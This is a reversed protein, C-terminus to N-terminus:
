QAPASLTVVSAQPPVEHRTVIGSPWRVRISRPPQADPYGFFCDPTSQSFYGSGAYVESTQSTGDALEVTIRAGVASPNGAPGRLSIRLSHRGAIGQNRFALTTSNNRSVVFDPWGDANLDLVALAKADGPVVLGSEALPAATFNGHGDGRLLQSLGGDFRGVIPNPAYSNQVAYIDAHGDGDFDGAVLGQLPAIQALRPLPSFRYIGDPQSLLVGSRLETASFKQAAALKADGLIEGLTARAYIDNKPYRKLISPIVAGLDKRTRWPFLKEGEYYAEIALPTGGEKFEGYYLLAPHAPDAHYQTNLGTNGVVYDPQGDGNFDASAISNWWGTGASAFGSKETWDVFGKGQENHFYKVQGWELTLLLDLWSDGDVDSWLASTVLGVERLGPALTDTVDEFHDGHNRLLTSRPALPYLGPLIRAGLFLDLRGDRDFDAAVAAGVSAPMSPLWTVPAPQLGGGNNLLLLPQFESAGAPLSNGGRTVLLDNRGDGNADFLLMPGGNVPGG